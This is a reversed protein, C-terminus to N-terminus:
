KGKKKNKPAPPVKVQLAEIKRLDIVKSLGVSFEKIVNDITHFMEDDKKEAILKLIEIAKERLQHERDLIKNNRELLRDVLRELLPTLRELTMECGKAPQLVYKGM